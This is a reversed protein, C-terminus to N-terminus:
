EFCDTRLSCLYYLNDESSLEDVRHIIVVDRVGRVTKRKVGENHNQYEVEITRVKGDTGRKVSCVRGYQYQMDFEKSSKLFLVIDDVSVEPDSEHWKPREILTPVYSM